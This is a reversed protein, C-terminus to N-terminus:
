YGVQMKESLYKLFERFVKTLITLYDMKQLFYFFYQLLAQCIWKLASYYRCHCLLPASPVFAMPAKKTAM